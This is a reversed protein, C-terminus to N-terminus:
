QQGDSCGDSVGYAYHGYTKFDRWVCSKGGLIRDIEIPQDPNTVNIFVTHKVTGIIAFERGQEDAYGWIDNYFLGSLGDLSNDDWNSRLTTNQPQGLLSSLELTLILIILSIKRM